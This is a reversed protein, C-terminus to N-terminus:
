ENGGRDQSYVVAGDDHTFRAGTQRDDSTVLQHASTGDANMLWLNPRGSATSIYALKRGDNSRRIGSISTTTLLAEVPLPTSAPGSVSTVVLPDTPKRDAPGDAYGAIFVGALSCWVIANMRM